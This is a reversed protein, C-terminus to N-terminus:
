CSERREQTTKVGEYDHPSIADSPQERDRRAKWWAAAHGESWDAGGTCAAFAQELQGVDSFRQEADRLLCRSIIQALEDPIDPRLEQLPRPSELIHAVIRKWPTKEAFPPQGSLLFYAVAGISYIDTRADLVTDGAAQQPSMYGPTGLILGTQTLRDGAEELGRVLGFDLLKVFDASAGGEAVLINSPKIDRHILGRAHAERLGACIQRLLYVARGPPLPGACAVLQQLDMGPLYQMAYYFIGDQSRGYDYIEIVNPHTLSAMAKVEREFRALYSSQPTLEPRIFKVACPRKLLGHEALYVEGMSGGGLRCKLQYQGLARVQQRVIKVEQQLTSIKYSGFVALGTALAFTTTSGAVVKVFLEGHESPLAAWDVVLLLLSTLLCMSACRRWTNPILLGYVLIIIFGNISNVYATSRVLVDEYERGWLPHVRLQILDEYQWCALYCIICGHLTFEVTRLLGLSPFQRRWLWVALSGIFLTAAIGIGRGVAQYVHYHGLEIRLLDPFIFLYSLAIGYLLNLVRLRRRLMGRFEVESAASPGHSPIASPREVVAFTDPSASAPLYPIAAMNGLSSLSSLPSNPRM